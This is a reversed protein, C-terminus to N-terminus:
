LEGPDKIDAFDNLNPNDLAPLPYYGNFYHDYYIKQSLQILSLLLSLGNGIFMSLSEDLLGFTTFMTNGIIFLIQLGYAIDKTTKIKFTHIIQFIQASIFICNGAWGFYEQVELSVNYM